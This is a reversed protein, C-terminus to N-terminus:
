VQDVAILIPPLTVNGAPWSAPVYISLTGNLTEATHVTSGTLNWTESWGASLMTDNFAPPILAVTYNASGVNNVNLSANTSVGPDISGWDFTTGNTWATGNLTFAVQV